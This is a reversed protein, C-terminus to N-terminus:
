VDHVEDVESRAGPPSVVFVILWCLLLGPLVTVGFHHLVPTDSLALLGFAFISTVASLTVAEWAHTQGESERLFIGMDLGIGLILLTALQNFLTLPQGALALLGFTMGTAVVPPLLVQWCRSRYRALLILAVLGYAVALWVGVQQRYRALLGSIDAVRDVFSVGEHADALTEIDQYVAPESVAGLAVVSAAGQGDTVQEGLWLHALFDGAGASEAASVGPVLWEPEHGILLERSRAPLSEPLGLDSALRDLLDSQLLTQRVYSYDGQQRAVSPILQSVAQFSGLRDESVWAELMPRLVEERELVQQGNDGTVLLFRSSGAGGSAAQVRQESELLAQPSSQLDGLNDRFELQFWGSVAAVAALLLGAAVVRRSRLGLWELGRGLPRVTAGGPEELGRLGALPFCFVVTLWAGILGFASFVAIQRLGPFPTFWQAGYALVSSLLGLTIGPLIRRLPVRALAQRACLYHMAYDVSVGVLSAGFALTVVHLRGFILLSATAAVCLGAGVSLVPLALSWVSRFHWLLLLVVATLSGLGITALERRAQKAGAAAHFVLGSRHVSTAGELGAEAADVAALVRQQTAADFPGGSFRVLVVRYHRDGQETYFGKSDQSFGAGPARSGLWHGLLNLPDEVLSAARGAVAPNVLERGAHRILAESDGEKLRHRDQETLLQYRYPRYGERLVGLLGPDPGLRVSEFSGSQALAQRFREAQAQLQRRHEREGDILLLARNAVEESLSQAAMETVPDKHGAPLLALISTDLSRGVMLQNSSWGTMAALLILWALAVLHQRGRGGTM